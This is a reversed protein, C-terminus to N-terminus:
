ALGRAPDGASSVPAGDRVRRLEEADEPTGLAVNYLEFQEEGAAYIQRRVEPDLGGQELGLELTLWLGRITRVYSSARHQSRLEALLDFVKVVLYLLLLSQSLIAAMIIRFRTTPAFVPETTGVYAVGALGLIVLAIAIPIV